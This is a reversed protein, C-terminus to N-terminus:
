QSLKAIALEHLRLLYTTTTLGFRGATAEIEAKIPAPVRIEIRADSIELKSQVEGRTLDKLEADFLDARRDNQRRDSNRRQQTRKDTM